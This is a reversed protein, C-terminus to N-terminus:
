IQVKPWKETSAQGHVTIPSGAQNQLTQLNLAHLQYAQQGAVLTYAMVYITQRAIDITPTSTIGVNPGNNHCGLPTPVPTGLHVSRLINATSSDIEYVTDNETVVYVVTHVGQGLITQNAVVLPQADVQDDLGVSAVLGFTTPTVNSPTLTSESPNWGTRQSDSHYTTVSTQAHAVM